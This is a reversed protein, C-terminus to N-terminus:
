KLWTQRYGYKKVKLTRVGIKVTDEMKAM